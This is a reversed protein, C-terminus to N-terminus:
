DANADAFAFGSSAKMHTGGPFEFDRPACYSSGHFGKAPSTTILSIVVLLVLTAISFVRSPRVMIRKM